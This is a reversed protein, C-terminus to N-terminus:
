HPRLISTLQGTLELDFYDSFQAHISVYGLLGGERVQGKVAKSFGKPSKLPKPPM